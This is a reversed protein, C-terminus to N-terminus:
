INTTSEDTKGKLEKEVLGKLDTLLTIWEKNITNEDYIYENIMDLYKKYKKEKLKNM